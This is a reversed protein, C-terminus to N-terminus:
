KAQITNLYEIILLVKGRVVAEKAISAGAEAKFVEGWVPMDPDGHARISTRGDIVQMLAGYPLNGGNGKSLKTLDTPKPRLFGSVVGDGKGGDGHCSSCYQLYTAKAANGHNEGALAPGAILLAMLMSGCFLAKPQM